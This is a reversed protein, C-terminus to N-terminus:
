LVEGDELNNTQQLDTRTLYENILCRLKKNTLGDTNIKEGVPSIHKISKSKPSELKHKRGDAILVRGDHIGAAVFCLGKDRGAISKVLMGIVIDM